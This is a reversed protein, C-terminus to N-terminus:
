AKSKKIQAELDQLEYLDEQDAQLAEESKRRQVFTQYVESVKEEMLASSVIGKNKLLPFENSQLMKDVNEQWFSMTFSKRSKARLEATELFITVLRNLTDIEDETLYNKAIFIDQKRVVKGKWSTLAMNSQTANASEVILEAATKEVTAFLLKNQTEAFFM